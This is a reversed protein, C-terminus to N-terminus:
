LIEENNRKKRMEDEEGRMETLFDPYIDPYPDYISTALRSMTWIKNRDSIFYSGALVGQGKGGTNGRLVGEPVGM